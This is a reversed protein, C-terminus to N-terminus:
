HSPATDAKAIEQYLNIVATASAEITLLQEFRKRGRAGMARLQERDDRLREFASALAVPNEGEVLLGTQGSEVVWNVGSGPIQSVVCAKAASMAELLVIGFSETRDNSPLCLCDCGLLLADKQDDDVAGHFRVRSGVGLAQTQAQLTELQEGGGVLDLEIHRTKAIADILVDFGKYHALRGIALVKLPQDAQHRTDSRKPSDFRDTIGLPIVRCKGRFPALTDSSHLYENSTVIIQRARRLLRSELPQYLTYLAKLIWSSKPTIVDSQWHIVWPLRRASPIALAWLSSPNPLHLHLLTPRHRNILHHFLWPFSPSIPTFLLRLWTAARTVHFDLGQARYCQEISKVGVTSRHVLAASRTGQQLSSVMLDRLYTEMGGPDPPFYKGVHLVSLQQDRPAEVSM